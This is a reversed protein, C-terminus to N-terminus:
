MYLSIFSMTLWLLQRWNVIFLVTEDILYNRDRIERGGRKEGGGRRGRRRVLGRRIKRKQIPYQFLFSGGKTPLASFPSIVWCILLFYAFYHLIFMAVFSIFLTYPLCLINPQPEPFTEQPSEQCLSSTGHFSDQSSLCLVTGVTTGLLEGWLRETPQGENGRLPPPLQFYYFPEGQIGMALTNGAETPWVYSM